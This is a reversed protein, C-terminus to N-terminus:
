PLPEGSAAALVREETVDARSLNATVRGAAMVIVRDPVTMVEEMDSSVMLIATGADALSRLLRYIDSKAGVDVGVTPEDLMLLKPARALWRGILVKQQNGGSLKRVPLSIRPPVVGLKRVLDTALLSALRGSLIGRRSVDPLHAAILNARVSLSM